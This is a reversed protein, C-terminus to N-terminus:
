TLISVINGAISVCAVFFWFNASRKEKDLEILIVAFSKGIREMTEQDPNIM